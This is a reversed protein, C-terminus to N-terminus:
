VASYFGYCYCKNRQRLTIVKDFYFINSLMGKWKRKTQCFLHVLHSISKDSTTNDVTNVFIVGPGCGDVKGVVGLSSFLPVWVYLESVLVAVVAHHVVVGSFSHQISPVGPTLDSVGDSKLFMLNM